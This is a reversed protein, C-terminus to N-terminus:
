QYGVKVRVLINRSFNKIIKENGVIWTGLEVFYLLITPFYAKQSEGKDHSSKDYDYM